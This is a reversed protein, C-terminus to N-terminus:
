HGEVAPQVRAGSGQDALAGPSEAGDAVAVALGPPAIEDACQPQHTVVAHQADFVFVPEHSRTLPDDLANFKQLRKHQLRRCLRPNLWYRIAAKASLPPGIRSVPACIM